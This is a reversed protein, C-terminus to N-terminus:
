LSNPRSHEQPNNQPNGPANKKTRSKAQTARANKLLRLHQLEQKILVKRADAVTHRLIKNYLTTADDYLEADTLAGAAKFRASQAWLPSETADALIASKLYLWAARDHQKLAASSEAKWFFIERQLKESLWEDPLANLLDIAQQHRQVTQLDFIVQLYHDIQESTLPLATVQPEKLQLETLQPATIQTPLLPAPTSYKHEAVTEALVTEGALYNGELVLVRAKRMRWAFLDEGEPPQQLTQMLQAALSTNSKSLAYDLLRYRVELPLDDPQAVRESHLYLQNILELGEDDKALLDVIGQHAKGQEQSSQTNFALVAYLGLAEVPNKKQMKHAANYWALDDGRLLKLRNSTVQGLKEYLTWLDDSTVIFEDGLAPHHNDLSLLERLTNAASIMDQTKLASAYIVYRYAWLEEINVVKGALQQKAEEAYLTTNEPHTRIAALLRLAQAVPSEVNQLLSMAQEPRQIRLLSRAQLLRWDENLMSTDEGYDQQYRLLATQADGDTNLQLYSRVVLRRWLAMLSSDTGAKSSWLLQRLQSLAKEGEGMNLLAIVQQSIFWQRIQQTIQQGPKAASLLTTINDVITQWDQMATLYVIRKSEFQYWDPSYVPWLQQQRNLLSLALAPMGLQALEDMQKLSEFVLPSESADAPKIAAAKMEIEVTEALVQSSSIIGATILTAAIFGAAIFDAAIFGATAM